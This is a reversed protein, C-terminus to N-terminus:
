HVERLRKARVRITLPESFMQESADSYVIKYDGGSIEATIRLPYQLFVKVAECDEKPVYGVFIDNILVKVANPDHQNTPEPILQVPENKYFYRYVKREAYGMSILKEPKMGYKQIKTALKNVDDLHYHTGSVKFTVLDPILPEKAPQTTQANLLKKLGEFM